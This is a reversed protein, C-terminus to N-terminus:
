EDSTGFLGGAKRKIETIPGARAGPSEAGGSKVPAKGEVPHIAIGGNPLRTMEVKRNGGPYSDTALPTGYPTFVAHVYSMGVTQFLVHVNGSKDVQLDPSRVRVVRGLNFMGYVEGAPEDEIRLYIFEESLGKPLYALVYTRAARPDDPVGANLRAIEAGKVVDLFMPASAYSVGDWEVQAQVRYRGVANLEYLRPLDFEMSRAEGPALSLNSVLPVQHLPKILRGRGLEIGFRFEAFEPRQGFGLTRGSDNRVTVQALASEYLLANSYPLRLDIALQAPSLVPAAALLIGALALRSKVSAGRKECPGTCMPM